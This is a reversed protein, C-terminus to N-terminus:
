RLVTIDGITIQPENDANIYELVYVYVGQEVYQGNFTGDWLEADGDLVTDNLAFVVNGWRDFVQITNVMLPINSGIKWLDDGTSGPYLVNSIFIDSLMEPIILEEVYFSLADSKFCSDNQYIIVELIQDIDGLFEGTIDCTESNECILEGDLYWEISSWDMLDSNLSYTTVDGELLTDIGSLSVAFDTPPDIVFTNTIECGFESFTILEHNGISFPMDELDDMSMLVGDLYCTDAFEVTNYLFSAIGVSDTYCEPNVPDIILNPVDVINITFSDVYSCLIDYEVDIYYQTSGIESSTQIVDQESITTGDITISNTLIAPINSVCFTTDSWLVSTTREPCDGTYCSIFASTYPCLCNSLPVIEVNIETGAPFEIPTYTSNVQNKIFVNDVYIDYSEHCELDDWVFQIPFSMDFCQIDFTQQPEVDVVFVALQQVECPGSSGTIYFYNEGTNDVSFIFDDGNDEIITISPPFGSFSWTGAGVYNFVTDLNIPENQCVRVEDILVDIYPAVSVPMYFSDLSICGAENIEYYFTYTSDVGAEPIFSGNIPLGNGDYWTDEANSNLMSPTTVVELNISTPTDTICVNYGDQPFSMTYFTCDPSCSITADEGQCFATGSSVSISVEDSELLGPFIWLNGDWYGNFTTLQDIVVTSPALPVESFEFFVTDANAFCNVEPLIFDSEMNALYTTDLVITENCNTGQYEWNLELTVLSDMHAQLLISNSEVVGDVIWEFGILSEDLYDSYDGLTAQYTVQQGDCNIIEIGAEAFPAFVQIFISSDCNNATGGPVNYEQGQVLEETFINNMFTLPLDMSLESACLVTDFMPTETPPLVIIRKYEVKACNCTDLYTCEYLSDGITPSFICNNSFWHIPWNVFSMTDEACLTETDYYVTDKPAVSFTTSFLDNDADCINSYNVELTFDGPSLPAFGGFANTDLVADYVVFGMDDRITYDYTVNGIDAHDTLTISIPSGPCLCDADCLDNVIEVNEPLLEPLELSNSAPLNLFELQIDCINGACGDIMLYYQNGIVLSDSELTVSHDPGFAEECDCNYTLPTYEWDVPADFLFVQIGLNTTSWKDFACNEYAVNLQVVTDWAIFCIWNPNEVTGACAPGDFEVQPQFECSAYMQYELCSLSDLDCFLRCEDSSQPLDDVTNCQGALSVSGLLTLVWLVSILTVRVLISM